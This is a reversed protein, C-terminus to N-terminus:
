DTVLASNYACEPRMMCSVYNGRLLVNRMFLFAQEGHFLGKTRHM